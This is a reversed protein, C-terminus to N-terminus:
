KRTILKHEDIFLKIHRKSRFYGGKAKKYLDKYNEISLLKSEKLENLFKRQLRIKTM